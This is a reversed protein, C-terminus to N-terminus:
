QHVILNVLEARNESLTPPSQKQPLPSFLSSKPTEGGWPSFMSNMKSYPSAMQLPSVGSVFPSIMGVSTSDTMTPTVGFGPTTSFPTMAFPTAGNLPTWTPAPDAVEEFTPKPLAAESKPTVPPTMPDPAHQGAASAVEEKTKKSITSYWRNKIMNDARTPMMM